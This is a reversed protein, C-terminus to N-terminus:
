SEYSCGAEMERGEVGWCRMLGVGPERGVVGPEGGGAV